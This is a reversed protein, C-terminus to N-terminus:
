MEAPGPQKLIIGMYVQGSAPDRVVLATIGSSQIKRAARTLHRAANYFLVVRVPGVATADKDM